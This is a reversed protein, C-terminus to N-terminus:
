HGFHQTNLLEIQCDEAFSLKSHLRVRGSRSLIELSVMTSFLDVPETIDSKYKEFLNIGELHCLLYVLMALYNTDQKNNNRVRELLESLEKMQPFTLLGFWDQVKSTGIALEGNSVAEKLHEVYNM